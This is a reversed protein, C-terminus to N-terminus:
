SFTVEAEKDASALEEHSEAAKSCGLVGPPSASPVESETPKVASAGAGLNASKTTCTKRTPGEGNPGRPRHRCPVPGFGM